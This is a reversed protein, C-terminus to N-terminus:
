GDVSTISKEEEYRVIRIERRSSRDDFRHVWRINEGDILGFFGGTLILRGTSFYISRGIEKVCGNRIRKLRSRFRQSIKQASVSIYYSCLSSPSTAVLECTWWQRASFVIRRSLDSAVLAREPNCYSIAVCVSCCILLHMSEPRDPPSRRFAFSRKRENVFLMPDAQCARFWNVGESERVEERAPLFLSVTIASRFFPPLSVSRHYRDLFPRDKWPNWHCECSSRDIWALCRRWGAMLIPDLYGYRVEASMCSCLVSHVDPNEKAILGKRNYSSRCACSGTSLLPSASSISRVGCSSGFRIADFRYSFRYCRVVYTSRKELGNWPRM